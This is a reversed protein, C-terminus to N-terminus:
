TSRFCGHVCPLAVSSSHYRFGYYINCVHLRNVRYSSSLLQGRLVRPPLNECIEYVSPTHQLHEHPEIVQLVRLTSSRDTLDTVMRLYRNRLRTVFTTCAVCYNTQTSRGHPNSTVLSSPLFAPSLTSYIQLAIPGCRSPGSTGGGLRIEGM